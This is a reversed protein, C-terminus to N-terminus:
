WDRAQYMTVPNPKISYLINAKSVRTLCDSIKHEHIKNVERKANLPLCDGEMYVLGYTKGNLEFSIFMEHETREEQLSKQVEHKYTTQLLKCWKKWNLIRNQNIEFVIVQQKDINM